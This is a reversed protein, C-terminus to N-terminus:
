CRDSLHPLTDKTAVSLNPKLVQGGFLTAFINGKPKWHRPNVAARHAPNDADAVFEGKKGKRTMGAYAADNEERSRDNVAVTTESAEGAAVPSTTTLRARGTGVETARREAKAERERRHASGETVYVFAGLKQAREGFAANAESAEGGAGGFILMGMDSDPKVSTEAGAQMRAAIQEVDKETLPTKGSKVDEKLKALVAAKSVPTSPDFSQAAGTNQDQAEAADQNNKATQDPEEPNEENAIGAEEHLDEDLAALEEANLDPDVHGEDIAQRARAFKEEKAAPKQPGDHVTQNYKSLKGKGGLAKWLNFKNQAEKQEAMKGRETESPRYLTATAKKADAKRTQTLLRSTETLRQEYAKKLKKDKIDKLLTKCDAVRKVASASLLQREADTYVKKSATNGNQEANRKQDEAAKAQEEAAESGKKTTQVSDKALQQVTKELATLGEEADKPPKQLDTAQQKVEPSVDGEARGDMYSATNQQAQEAATLDSTAYATTSTTSVWPDYGDDAIVDGEPPLPEDTEVPPQEGNEAAALLKETNEAAQEEASLTGDEPPVEDAPSTPPVGEEESAYVENEGYGSIESM